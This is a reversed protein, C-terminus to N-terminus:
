QRLTHLRQLERHQHADPQFVELLEGEVAGGHQQPQCHAGQGPRDDPWEVKTQNINQQRIGFFNLVTLKPRCLFTVVNTVM